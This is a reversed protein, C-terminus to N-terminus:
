SELHRKNHGNTSAQYSLLGRKQMEKVQENSYTTDDLIVPFM